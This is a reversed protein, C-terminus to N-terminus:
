VKKNIQQHVPIIRNCEDLSVTIIRNYEDLSIWDIVFCSPIGKRVFIEDGEFFTTVKTRYRICNVAPIMGNIKCPIAQPPLKWTEPYTNRFCTVNINEFNGYDVFFVTFTDSDDDSATVYCRCFFYFLFICVRLGKLALSTFAQRPVTM